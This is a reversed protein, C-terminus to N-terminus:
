AEQFLIMKSVFKTKMSAKLEQHSFGADICTKKWKSRSLQEVEEDM